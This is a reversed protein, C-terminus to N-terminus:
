VTVSTKFNFVNLIFISCIIIHRFESFETWSMAATKVGTDNVTDFQCTFVVTWM